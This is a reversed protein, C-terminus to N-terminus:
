LPERHGWFDISLRFRRSTVETLKLLGLGQLVIRAPEFRSLHRGCPGLAPQPLGRLSDKHRRPLFQRSMVPSKAGRCCLVATTLATSSVLSPYIISGSSPM